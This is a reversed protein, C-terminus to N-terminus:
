WYVCVTATSGNKWLLRENNTCSSWVGHLRRCRWVFGRVNSQIRSRRTGSRTLIMEALVDIDGWWGNEAAVSFGSKEQQLAAEVDIRTHWYYPPILRLFYSDRDIVITTLSSGVPANSKDVWHVIVNVGKTHFVTVCNDGWYGHVDSGDVDDYVISIWDLWPFQAHLANCLSNASAQHNGPDFGAGGVLQKTKKNVNSAQESYCRSIAADWETQAREIKPGYFEVSDQQIAAAEEQAIVADDGDGLNKVAVEAVLAYTLLAFLAGGVDDIVRFDGSSLRYAAGLVNTVLGSECMSMYIANAAIRTEALQFGRLNKRSNRSEASKPDKECHKRYSDLMECLTKIRAVHPFLQTKAATETVLDSLQEFQRDMSSNLTEVQTSLDSIARLVRDTESETEVIMGVLTAALGLGAGVAGLGASLKSLKEAVKVLEDIKGARDAAMKVAAGFKTIAESTKRIQGATDM